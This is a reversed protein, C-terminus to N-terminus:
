DSIGVRPYAVFYPGPVRTSEHGFYPSGLNVTDRNQWDGLSQAIVDRGGTIPIIARQQVASPKEFGYAYIGRLLDDRLGIEDFTPVVEVDDTTEFILEEEDENLGGTRNEMVRLESGM